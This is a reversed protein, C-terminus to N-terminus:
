VEDDVLGKMLTVIMRGEDLKVEKIVQPIAPLLIDRKGPSKVVYVDNSGTPFCDTLEGLLDGSDTEVRLGILDCIYYTGDPLEGLDDRDAYVIKGKYTEATNMDTVGKLTLIVSQKHYRVRLIELISGNKDYLKDLTEFVTPDDCWPTLKVEGKIGHTNVIRGIEIKGSM